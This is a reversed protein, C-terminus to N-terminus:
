QGDLVRAVQFGRKEFIQQVRGLNVTFASEFMHAGPFGKRAIKRRVVYEISKATSSDVGMKVEIWRVLSGEPPMKQGPRRGKEVVEGYKSQEAVIGKVIPSGQGQVESHITSVLGGQTGYVGQPTGKKVEAELLLTAEYMAATLERNFIEPAKGEFINGKASVRVKIDM